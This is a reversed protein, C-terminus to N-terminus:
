NKRTYTIEMMKEENGSKDIGYMEFEHTDDNVIRTVTRMTMPGKFPDDYRCAQTITREDADATGEFYFIGTSMSDMWTSVFKGRHNDFGTVGMGTFPTGMMDGHFDQQLYRGGLLMIQESTGTSEVPPDGPNMWARTRTQWSGAMGALMKHPKGPTALKRYVEMQESMDFEGKPKNDYTM